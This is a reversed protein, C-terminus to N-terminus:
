PPPLLPRPELAVPVQSLVAPPPPGRGGPPPGGPPPGGSGGSSQPIGAMISLLTTKGAGNPGIIAVREGSYVEFTVGRLAERDGFRKVLNAAGLAGEGTPAPTTATDPSAM